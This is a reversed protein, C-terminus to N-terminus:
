RHVHRGVVGAVPAPADRDARRHVWASVSARGGPAGVGRVSFSPHDGGSGGPVDACPHAVYEAFFQGAPDNFREDPICRPARTVLRPRYRGVGQSRHPEMPNHHAGVRSRGRERVLPFPNVMPGTGAEVHFDYFGRLVSEAHAATAPAYRSVPAAKGTMRNPARGAAAVAVLGASPRGHARRWHTVAPKGGIQVWRCFDRAEVRTAQDWAVEVTWLFRFWRLLDMGYSRQTAATRGAAQLEKLYEGVPGVVRGDPAVLRFPEWPGGARELSGVRAVVLGALDRESDGAGLMVPSWLPGVL